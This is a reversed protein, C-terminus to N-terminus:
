RIIAIVPLNISPKEEGYAKLTVTNKEIRGTMIQADMFGQVQEETIDPIPVIEVNHDALDEIVFSILYPPADGTWQDARMIVLCSVSGDAKGALEEDVADMMAAWDEHNIFDDAEPKRFGYNKTLKM